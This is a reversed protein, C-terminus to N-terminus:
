ATDSDRGSLCFIKPSRASCQAGDAMSAVFVDLMETDFIAALATLRPVDGSSCSAELARNRDMWQITLREMVERLRMTITDSM